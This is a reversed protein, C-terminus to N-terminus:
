YSKCSLSRRSESEKSFGAPKEVIVEEDADLSRGQVEASRIIPIAIPHFTGENPLNYPSEKILNEDSKEKAIQHYNGPFLIDPKYKVNVDNQSYYVNKEIQQQEDDQLPIMRPKFAHEYRPIGKLDKTKRATVTQSGDYKPQITITASTVDVVASGRSRSEGTLSWLKALNNDYSRDALSLASTCLVLIIRRWM